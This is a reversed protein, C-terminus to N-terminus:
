LVGTAHSSLVSSRLKTCRAVELLGADDLPNRYSGFIEGADGPYFIIVCVIGVCWKVM